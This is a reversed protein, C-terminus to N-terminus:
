TRRAVIGREGLRVLMSDPGLTHNLGIVIFHAGGAAAMKVVQDAWWVNRKVHEVQYLSPYKIRMRDINVTSARGALWDYQDAHLGKAEDEYFDLLFRLRESQQEPTMDAFFHTISAADPNEARVTKGAAWAMRALVADPAEGVGGLGQKVRQRWYGRNLVFYAFWPRTHELDARPVGYTEAAALLRASLQPDLGDFLSHDPDHGLKRDLEDSEREAQANKVAPNPKPAEFWVEGSEDFARRIHPTLWSADKTDGAGFIWVKAGRREVLWLIPHTAPTAAHGFAPAAAGLLSMLVLNRRDIFM